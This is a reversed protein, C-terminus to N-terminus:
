YQNEVFIFPKRVWKITCPALFTVKLQETKFFLKDNISLKEKKKKKLLM